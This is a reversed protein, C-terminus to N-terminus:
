KLYAKIIFYSPYVDGDIKQAGSDFGEEFSELIFNKFFYSSLYENLTHSPEKVTIQGNFFVSEVIEKKFYNKGKYKKEIFQRVPHSTLYILQGKPKLVRVIEKYISDIDDATQFAWKSTVIDFFNDPFPISNFYGVKITAGPNKEQAIDVMQQSSDIGYIEAGRAKMQTLDYGDGCGLDLLKKEKLAFDFYRFYASISDQNHELFIDSYNQAFTNYQEVDVKNIKDLINIKEAFILYHQNAFTLYILLAWFFNVLM